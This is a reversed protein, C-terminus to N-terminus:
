GIKNFSMGAGANGTSDNWTITGNDGLTFEAKGNSYITNSSVVAGDNDYANNMQIGKGDDVLKGDKLSCTYKWVTTEFASSGMEVTCIISEGDQAKDIKLTARDYQWTGKYDDFTKANADVAQDPTEETTDQTEDVTEEPTAEPTVQEAEEGEEVAQEEGQGRFDSDDVTVHIATNPDVLEGAQPTQSDVTGHIGGEDIELKLNADEAEIEASTVSLGVLDPVAVKTFDSDDITVSVTTREEVLTGAAPWQEVVTGHFKGNTELALGAEDTAIEASTVSMGVLDPVTVMKVPSALTVTVLTNPAVETGAAVDQSVVIGAPDGTYRATLGASRLTREADTWTYSTVNPVKVNAAPKSGLSVIVSVTTGPTVKTGAAVSQSIVNGKAVNDSYAETYDFSLKASTIANKAEDRTKGVVNPVTAQQAKQPALAVTYIVKTGETVKTGAAVSQKFVKGPAAADTTEPVAAVAVLGLDTLKKKAEDQSLGKLDPVQIEKAKEKGSSVVLNVASNAKASSLAKPEQSIVCGMPVTDSPKTTVKGMRLGSAVIVKEADAQTLSIANPVTLMTDKDIKAMQDSQPAVDSNTTSTAATTTASQNAPAQSSCSSCGGLTLLGLALSGAAFMSLVQQKTITNKMTGDM